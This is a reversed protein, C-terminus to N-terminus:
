QHIAACFSQLGSCQGGGCNVVTGIRKYGTACAPGNADRLAQPTIYFDTVTSGPVQSYRYAVCIHRASQCKGNPCDRVQGISSHGSPCSGGASTMTINSLVAMNTTPIAAMGCFIQDGYIMRGTDAVSGLLSYGTGCMGGGVTHQGLQTMGISVIANSPGSVPIAVLTSRGMSDSVMISATEAIMGTTYRNGSLSGVGSILTYNYPADGGNVSITVTTNISAPNPSFSVGLVSSGQQLQVLTSTMNGLADTAYVMVSEPIASVSPPATYLGNVSIVGGGIVSYTYPAEGGSARFQLTEGAGLTPNAPSIGISSGMSYLDNEGLSFPNVESCAALHVLALCLGALRTLTQLRERLDMKIGM